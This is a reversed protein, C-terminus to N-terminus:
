PKEQEAQLEDASVFALRAIEPPPERGWREEYEHGCDLDWSPVEGQKEARLLELLHDHIKACRLCQPMRDGDVEVDEGDEDEEVTTGEQYADRFTAGVPIPERCACCRAAETAVRFGLDIVYYDSDDM